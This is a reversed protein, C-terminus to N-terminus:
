PMQSEVYEYLVAFKKGWVAVIVLDVVVQLTSSVFHEAPYLLYATAAVYIWTATFTVPAAIRENQLPVYPYLAWFGTGVLLVVGTYFLFFWGASIADVFQIRQMVEFLVQASLLSREWVNTVVLLAAATLYLLLVVVLGAIFTTTVVSPWTIRFSKEETLAVQHPDRIRASEVIIALVATTGIVAAVVQAMYPVPRWLRYLIVALIVAAAAALIRYRWRYTAADHRM